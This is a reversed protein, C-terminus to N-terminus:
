DEKLLTVSNGPQNYSKFLLHITIPRVCWYHNIKNLQSWIGKLSPVVVNVDSTIYSMTVWNTAADMKFWSPLPPACLRKGNLGSNKWLEKRYNRKCNIKYFSHNKSKEKKIKKRKQFGQVNRYHLLKLFLLSIYSKKSINYGTSTKGRDRATLSPGSVMLITFREENGNM